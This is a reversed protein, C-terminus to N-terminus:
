YEWCGHDIWKNHCLGEVVHDWHKSQQHKYSADEPGRHHNPNQALSGKAGQSGQGPEELWGMLEPVYHRLGQTM